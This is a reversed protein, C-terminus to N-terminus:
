SNYLYTRDAATSGHSLRLLAAIRVDGDQNVSIAMNYTQAAEEVREQYTVIEPM